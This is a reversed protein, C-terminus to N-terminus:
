TQRAHLRNTVGADQRDAAVATGVPNADDALRKVAFVVFHVLPIDAGAIEMGKVGSKQATAEEAIALVLALRADHHDVLRECSLVKGALVRDPLLEAVQFQSRIRQAL